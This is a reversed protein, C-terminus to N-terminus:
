PGVIRWTGSSTSPNLLSANKLRVGQMFWAGMTRTGAHQLILDTTSDSNLDTVAVLRWQADGPHSPVPYAGQTLRVGNMLWIALTGDSNQLILDTMANADFTGAGVVRWQRDGTHSPSLLQSSVLNIGNMFWAGMTGDTHQLILDPRADSDFDGTAAVRWHATGPHHPNLLSSSSLRAGNMYWVAMTGDAHQFLLDTQGNSDFDAAGVIQWNPDGLSPDFAAASKLESGNMFWVGINGGEDALLIDSLNDGNFDHTISPGTTIPTDLVSQIWSIRRSIRLAYFGGPRDGLTDSVRVWTGGSQKYLGGEDFIAAAFGTGSDSLNYPGDVAYNVGALKWVAGDKLFIGGGSDGTSLHAEDPGSEADFAVRLLEGIGTRGSSNGNLISEVVNVGWRLRGDAVGHKWGKLQDGFNSSIMVAEGRASGRGHVVLPLGAEDDKEYLHAFEPFREAVRWIRLDTEPDDYVAITTYSVGRFVFIEGVAGGFHGATIFFHPAIPTGVFTGWLGQFQWGSQALDGNPPSTNHAPDSASYFIVSHVQVEFSLFCAASLILATRKRAHSLILSVLRRVSALVQSLM